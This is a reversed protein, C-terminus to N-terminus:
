SGLSGGILSSIAEQEFIHFHTKNAAGQQCENIRVIVFVMYRKEDDCGRVSASLQESFSLLWGLRKEGM